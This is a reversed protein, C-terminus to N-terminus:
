VCGDFSCGVVDAMKLTFKEFLKDISKYLVEGSSDNINLLHLLRERTKRGGEVFLVCIALQDLTSIDQTSHVMLSFKGCEKIANVIQARM